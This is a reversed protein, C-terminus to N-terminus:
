AAAQALKNEWLRKTLDRVRVRHDRFCPQLKHSMYRPTEDARGGARERLNIVDVREALFGQWAQELTQGFASSMIRQDTDAGAPDLASTMTSIGSQAWFASEQEDSAFSMMGPKNYLAWVNGHAVLELKDAPMNWSKHMIDVPFEREKKRAAFEDDNEHVQYGPLGGHMHSDELWISSVLRPVDARGEPLEKLRVSDGPYFLIPYPLDGLRQDATSETLWVHTRDIDIVVFHVLNLGTHVKEEGEFKVNIYSPNAYRGPKKGERNLPGHLKQTPAVFTATKGHYKNFFATTNFNDTPGLPCAYYLKCGPRLEVLAQMAYSM